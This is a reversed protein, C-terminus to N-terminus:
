FEEEGPNHCRFEAGGDWTSFVWHFRPVVTYGGARQGNLTGYWYGPSDGSGTGDRSVFTIVRGNKSRWQRVEPYWFGNIKKEYGHGIVSWYPQLGRDSEIKDGIDGFFECQDYSGDEEYFSYKPAKSAQSCCSLALMLISSTLRSGRM